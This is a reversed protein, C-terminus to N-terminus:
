ACTSALIIGAPFPQIIYYRSIGCLIRHRSTASAIQLSNRVTLQKGLRATWDAHANEVPYNFIYESQLGHLAAQAGHLMTWALLITQNRTCSDMYGFGRRRYSLGNLNVAQWPDSETARV